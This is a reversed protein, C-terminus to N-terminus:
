ETKGAVDAGDAPADGAPILAKLMATGRTVVRQGPALGAAQVVSVRGDGGLLAQVDVKRVRRGELRYLVHGGGAPLLAAAPVALSGEPAPLQLTVAFQQGPLLGADEAVQARVRLSQSAPDTDAAVAVVRASAGDPLGVTQGPALAARYRVPASFRVDLPGPRAVTFAPDLAAVSQGPQVDRRLVRGDMPALLVYEGPLGGSAPRLAALAGEAQRLLGTAAEARARAQEDRAAPIIGEALLQRDRRAQASAAMAEGRASALAAQAALWERVYRETTGTAAALKLSTTPGGDAMAKYLGLQDGLIVLAASVAAGMDGLMKGQFAELKSQDVQM